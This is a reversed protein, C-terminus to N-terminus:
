VSCEFFHYLTGEPPVFEPVPVPPPEPIYGPDGPFVPTSEVSAGAGTSESRSFVALFPYNWSPNRKESLRRNSTPSLLRPSSLRSVQIHLMNSPQGLFIRHPRSNSLLPRKGLCRAVVLISTSTM